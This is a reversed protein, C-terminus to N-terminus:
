IKRTENAVADIATPTIAYRAVAKRAVAIAQPPSSLARATVFALAAVSPPDRRIPTLQEASAHYYARHAIARGIETMVARRSCGYAAAGLLLAITGHTHVGPTGVRPPPALEEGITLRVQLDPINVGSATANGPEITRPNCEIYSPAGHQHVYDLTLGGHWALAEGLTAIDRRPQPHDVSLRAAASPGIGIGVQVSTHVAVLRGRDFLGQVQGYQGNAPQRAMVLADRELFLDRAATVM